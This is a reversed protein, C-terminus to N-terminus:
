AHIWIFRISAKAYDILAISSVSVALNLLFSNNDLLPSLIETHNNQDISKNTLTASFEKAIDLRLRDTEKDFIIIEANFNEALLPLLAQGISGFGIIIIRNTTKM